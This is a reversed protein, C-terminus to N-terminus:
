VGFVRLFSQRLARLIQPGIPSAGYDFRVNAVEGILAPPADPPLAISFVFFPFLATRGDRASPDLAIAGGSPKGLALGPLSRTAGPVEGLLEAPIAGMEPYSALRVAVSRTHGRVLDVDSQSVVVKIQSPPRALVHGLLAGRSVYAGILDDAKNMLYTGDQPATVTLDDVSSRTKGVERELLDVQQRFGPVDFPALAEAAQARLRMEDLRALVMEARSATELNELTLIPAGAKVREGSRVHVGRVIGDASAVVLSQKPAVVIGPAITGYPVPVWFLLVGLGAIAGTVALAARHRRGAMVESFLMYDIGRLLPWVLSLLISWVILVAGLFLYKTSVFVAVGCLVTLRYVLAAPAYILFWIREGPATAPNTANPVGFAYRQLLYVWYRNARTGLNPVEILDSLIYYADFKLLPNGNFVLTSVSAIFMANFALAKLAGPETNLWVLMAGAAVLLEVYMGAAAVFARDRKNQLVASASADVYPVPLFILFMIGIDHVEGGFKKVAHAHGLEHLIKILPFVVLMLVLNDVALVRAAVDTTLSTWNAAGQLCFWGVALSWFVFGAPSFLLGFVSNTRDLFRDPDFLQIRLYLPNQFRQLLKKRRGRDSRTALEEPDAIAQSHLMDFLYMQGLIRVLDDQSPLDEDDREAIETWVQDVTRQGDLRVLVRYVDPPFRFSRNTARDYAVYWPSGRTMHRVIDVHPRLKPTLDAVRHWVASLTPRAVSMAVLGM